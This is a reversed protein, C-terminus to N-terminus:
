KKRVHERIEELKDFLKETMKQFEERPVYKGAVLVDLEQVKKTLGMISSWLIKM